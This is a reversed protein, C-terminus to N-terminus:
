DAAPNTSKLESTYVNEGSIYYLEQTIRAIRLIVSSIGASPLM